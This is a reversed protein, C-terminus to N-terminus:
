EDHKKLERYKCYKKNGTQKIAWRRCYTKRKAMYICKKCYESIGTSKLYCNKNVWRSICLICLVMNYKKKKGCKKRCYKKFKDFPKTSKKWAM